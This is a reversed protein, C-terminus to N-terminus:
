KICKVLAMGEGMNVAFRNKHFLYHVGIFRQHLQFFLTIFQNHMGHNVVQEFSGAPLSHLIHVQYESQIFFGPQIQFCTIKLNFRIRRSKRVM